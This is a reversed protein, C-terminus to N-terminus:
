PEQRSPRLDRLLRTLDLDPIGRHDLAAVVDELYQANTGAEGRSRGLREIIERRTLTPQFLPSTEDAILVLAFAEGRSSTVRAWVAKYFPLRLEAEFVRGLDARVTQALLRWAVGACQDGAVLGLVVGPEDATGRLLPDSLCFRRSWGECVVIEDSVPRFPPSELMAGYAFFWTDVTAIDHPARALAQDLLALREARDLVAARSQDIILESSPM